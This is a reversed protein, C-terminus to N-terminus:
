WARWGIDWFASKALNKDTQNFLHTSDDGELLTIGGVARSGATEKAYPWEKPCRGAMTYQMCRPRQLNVSAKQLGGVVFFPFPVIKGQSPGFGPIPNDYV